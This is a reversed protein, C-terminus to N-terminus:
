GPIRRSPNVRRFKIAREPTTEPCDEDFVIPKKKAEELQKIEEDTLIENITKINEMICGREFSTARRASIIRTVTTNEKQERETYVVFLIDESKGIHGVTYDRTAASIDGITDYRDEELSNDDDYMEIRDYDLFVRAAIEFSIGHKRINAINKEEDYEFAMGNLLFSVTM